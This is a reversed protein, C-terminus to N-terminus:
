LGQVCVGFFFVAPSFHVFLDVFNSKLSRSLTTYKRVNATYIVDSVAIYICGITLTYVCQYVSPLYYAIVIVPALPPQHRPAPAPTRRGQKRGTVDDTVVRPARPTVDVPRPM